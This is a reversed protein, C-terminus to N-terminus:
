VDLGWPFIVCLQNLLCSDVMGPKPACVAFTHVKSATQLLHGKCIRMTAGSGVSDDVLLLNSRPIIAPVIEIKIATENKNAVSGTIFLRAKTLLDKKSYRSFIMKHCPKHLAHAILLGIIWGGSTIGVVADVDPWRFQTLAEQLESWRPTDPFSCPITLLKFTMTLYAETAQKKVILDIADVPLFRPIAESHMAILQNMTIMTCIFFVCFCVCSLGLWM